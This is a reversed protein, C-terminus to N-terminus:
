GAPAGSAELSTLALADSLSTFEFDPFASKLVAIDFSRSTAPTARSQYCVEVPEGLVKKIARVVEVASYSNASAVNVLGSSRRLVILTLLRAVDGVHIYTRRDEGAGGLTVTRKGRAERLFRGPGYSNHPDGAGVVMTPRAVALSGADVASAFMVERTRHMLGYLDAPAAPTDESIVADGMAYVADSSVYVVHAVPSEALSSCVADAMDLNRRLTGVDRGFRPTLAALMVLTDTPRLLGLLLAKAGGRTLDITSSTVNVVDCGRDALSAVLQTGIFGGGGLVVVRGTPRDESQGHKLM